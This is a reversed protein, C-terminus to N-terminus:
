EARNMHLDHGLRADYVQHADHRLLFRLVGYFDRASRVAHALDHLDEFIALRAVLGAPRPGFRRGLCGLRLASRTVAGGNWAFIRSGRSRSCHSGLRGRGMTNVFPTKSM